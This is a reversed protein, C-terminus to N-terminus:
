GCAAFTNRMYFPCESAFSKAGDRSVPRSTEVTLRVRHAEPVEEVIVAGAWGIVYEAVAMRRKTRTDISRGDAVAFTFRRVMPHASAPGATVISTRTSTM